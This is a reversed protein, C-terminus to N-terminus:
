QKIYKKGTSHIFSTNNTIVLLLRSPLGTLEPSISVSRPYHIRVDETAVPSFVRAYQSLESGLGNLPVGKLSFLKIDNSRKSAIVFARDKM